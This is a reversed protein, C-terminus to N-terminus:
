RSSNTLWDLFCDLAQVPLFNYSELSSPAIFCLYDNTHQILVCAHISFFLILSPVSLNYPLDDLITLPFILLLETVM